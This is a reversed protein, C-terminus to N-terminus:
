RAEEQGDLAKRARKVDYRCADLEFTEARTITSKGELEKIRKLTQELFMKIHERENDDM